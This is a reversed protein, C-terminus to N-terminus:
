KVVGPLKGKFAAMFGPSIAEIEKLLKGVQSASQAIHRQQLPTTSGAGDDGEKILKQFTKLKEELDNMTRKVRDGDSTM